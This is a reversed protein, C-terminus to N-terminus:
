EQSEKMGNFLAQVVSVTYSLEWDKRRTWDLAMGSKEPIQINKEVFMFIREKLKNNIKLYMGSQRGLVQAAILIRDYDHLREIIDFHNELIENEYLTYYHEIVFLIDYLDNQREEPRDDYSILKLIIMGPLPPVNVMRDEIMVQESDTLIDSYGLVHLDIVRQDFRETFEEEIKGFPLIDVVAEGEKYVLTNAAKRAKVFGISVLYDMIEDFSAITPVMIAFDIDKTGRPPQIGREKLIQISIANAGVLYYKIGFKRFAEDILDFVEKFYPIALRKYSQNSASM